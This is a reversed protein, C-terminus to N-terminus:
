CKVNKKYAALLLSGLLGFAVGAVKNATAGVLGNIFVEGVNM